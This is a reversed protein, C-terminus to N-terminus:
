VPASRGGPLCLGGRRLDRGPGAGPWPRLRRFRRGDSRRPGTRREPRLDLSPLPLGAAGGPGKGDALIRSGRHRCTNHFGRLVGDHGRTVFIPAGALTLAM